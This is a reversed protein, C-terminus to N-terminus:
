LINKLVECTRCIEMKHRWSEQVHCECITGNIFWCLKGAQFEWAPCRNRREPPCHKIIWCPEQPEGLGRKRSLLFFIQREVHTPIQRWGQEYSHVAKISTGLLEALQKQTKMLKHRAHLLENPNM